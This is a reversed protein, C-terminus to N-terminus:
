FYFRIVLAIMYIVALSVGAISVYSLIKAQKTYGLKNLVLGLIIAILNLIFVWKIIHFILTMM